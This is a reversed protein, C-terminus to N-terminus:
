KIGAAMQYHEDSTDFKTQGSPLNFQSIIKSKFKLLEKPLYVIFKNDKGGTGAEWLVRGRPVDEYELGKWKPTARVVKDWM